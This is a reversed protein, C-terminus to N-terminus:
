LGLVKVIQKILAVVVPPALLSYSLIGNNDKISWPEKIIRVQNAQNDFEYNYALTIEYDDTYKKATEIPLSNRLFIKAVGQMKMLNEAVKEDAEIRDRIAEIGLEDGEKTMMRSQDEDCILYFKKNKKDFGIEKTALLKINRSTQCKPCIVRYKMREDIVSEPVDIFVFFDPDDRYGILARFYLSYSIQDLNRPFGDIFVAKRGLKLIEREVLILILETPLLIRTSRNTLSKMIDNLSVPGRYNAKLFDLFDKKKFEADIARVIDGISIHEIYEPGVAEAFMKAYTGKGSGKQGILFGVFTNKRLYDRLKEIEADAKHEFYKRRDVPDDLDFVKKDGPIKTKFIPFNKDMM